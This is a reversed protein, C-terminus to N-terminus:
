KKAKTQQAVAFPLLANPVVHKVKAIAEESSSAELTKTHYTSQADIVLIFTVTYM